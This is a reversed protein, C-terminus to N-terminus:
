DGILTCLRLARLFTHGVFRVASTQSPIIRQGPFWCAARHIASQQQPQYAKLDSSYAFPNRPQIKLSTDRVWMTLGARLHVRVQTHEPFSQSSIYLFLNALWLSPLSQPLHCFVVYVYLLASERTTVSWVVLAGTRLKVIISSVSYRKRELRHDYTTLEEKNQFIYLPLGEWSSGPHTLKLGSQALLVSRSNFM